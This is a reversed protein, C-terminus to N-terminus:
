PQNGIFLEPEVSTGNLMVGWHLHPATSRGTSGALGIRQGQKVADGTKAIIESLHCYLTILGNGHDVFVGNGCYYYDGTDIVVGDAPAAIPTGTGVAVDLGAHPSRPKGNLVRAVGFRSSLPGKAPLVFAATTTETDRWTSRLTKIHASEREIRAIVEPPPDVMAKKLTLKQVPYRKPKVLFTQTTAASGQVVNVEHEGPATSLPLGVVAVWADKRQVVWVREGRFNVLPATHSQDAKAVSLLAVGGPVRLERPLTTAHASTTAVFTAIVITFLTLLIHFISRSKNKKMTQIIANQQMYTSLHSLVDYARGRRVSEISRVPYIWRSRQLARFTEHASTLSTFSGTAAALLGRHACQLLAHPM